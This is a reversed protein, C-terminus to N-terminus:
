INDNGSTVKTGRVVGIGINNNGGCYGLAAYGLATNDDGVFNNNLTKDGIATNGGGMIGNGAYTGMITNQGGNVNFALAQRAVVPNEVGTTVAIGFSTNSTEDDCIQACQALALRCTLLLLPSFLLAIKHKIIKRVELRV